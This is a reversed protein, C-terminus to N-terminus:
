RKQFEPAALALGIGDWKTEAGTVAFRVKSNLREGLATQAFAIPDPPTGGAAKVLVQPVNMAWQIRAALGQPNVWAEANEPWGDPGLPREWPQGMLTLPTQFLLESKKRNLGMVQHAPIDLARLSSAVFDFPQKVKAPQYDWASPHAVMATYCAILSGDNELYAQSIAEVLEPDPTDSVFHVALKQAIHAATAPHAAIDTLAAHISRLRARPGSYVNDLVKEEGPEARQPFFKTGDEFTYRIGALLEAFERVDIQSYGANVGLTHLELIERALNENLGGKKRKAFSSNPGVSANQDLYQLMAPHLSAAILLDAFNGTINPRIAEEVYPTVLTGYYRGGGVVTFHDAWFRVLRERFGFQANAYRALSANFDQVSENRTTNVLRQLKKRTEKEVKPDKAQRVQKSVEKMRLSRKRLSSFTPIPFDAAMDDPRLLEALLDTQSAPPALRPSLGAGFRTAALESDFAM